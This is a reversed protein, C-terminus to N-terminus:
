AIKRTKYAIEHDPRGFLFGSGYDVDFDLLEKLDSEKEIKEAILTIGSNDFGRRLRNFMQQGERTNGLALIRSIDVKMYRVNMSKLKALDTSPNDVHDLSFTFGLQGMAKIIRDVGEPPNMFDKQPMEFVLRSTLSRKARAYELLDHMFSQNKLTEMSINIFYQMTVGRRADQNILELCSLLLTNDIATLLSEREALDKYSQAPIYVGPKARVRAYMELWEMKRSPLRVVPQAFTEIKDSQLARHLLEVMMNEPMKQITEEAGQRGATEQLSEGKKAPKSRRLSVKEYHRRLQAFLDAHDQDQEQARLVKATEAMDDKLSDLENRNRAVERSLRESQSVVGEVKSYLKAQDKRRQLAEIGILGCVLCFGIMTVAGAVGFASGFMMSAFITGVAYNVLLVPLPLRTIATKKAVRLFLREKRQHRQLLM